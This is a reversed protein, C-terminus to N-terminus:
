RSEIDALDAEILQSDRGFLGSVLIRCRQGDLTSKFIADEFAGYSVLDGEKFRCPVEDLALRLLGEVERRRMEAVLKEIVRTAHAGSPLVGSVGRTSYMKTWGPLGVDVNVFLYRPFFPLTIVRPPQGKPVVRQQHVPLYAEFLDRGEKDRQRQLNELALREQKLHTQVVFWRSMDGHEISVAAGM